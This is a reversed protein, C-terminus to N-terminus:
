RVLRISWFCWIPRRVSMARWTMPECDWVYIRSQANWPTQAVDATISFPQTRDKPLPYDYRFYNLLEETRVAGVPPRQGDNVMRRVNAYAGTDVDVSFTSVPTEAVRMIGSVDEASYRERNEPQSAIMGGVPPAARANMMSPPAIYELRKEQPVPPVPIPPPPATAPKPPTERAQVVPPPPSVVPAPAAQQPSM